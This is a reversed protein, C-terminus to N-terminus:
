ELIILIDENSIDTRLTFIHFLLMIMKMMMDIDIIQKENSNKRNSGRKKKM